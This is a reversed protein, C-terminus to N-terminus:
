KFNRMPASKMQYVMNSTQDGRSNRRAKSKQEKKKKVAGERNRDEDEKEMVMEDCEDEDDSYNRGREYENKQVTSIEQEFARGYDSWVAAQRQQAETKAVKGFLSKTKLNLFRAGSYDGQAALKATNQVANMGLVALNAHEEAVEQSNTIKLNRSIVRMCKMGNLKTYRIQVQFPLETLGGFDKVDKKIGYEFTVGTDQTVNGIDKIDLDKSEVQSDDVRLQMATHLRLTATVHTALVPMSLISQFNKTIELPSVRDVAGATLETLKGINEISCDDGKISLVSISTGKNQAYLGIQQYFEAIKDKESDDYMMDMAGLGVNSLGDTCIVIKSGPVKTAIGLAVVLAPGLATPGTEELQFLKQNLAEKAESVTKQIEYDQGVKFMQDYSMLRDGVVTESMQTGDGLVSVEGNFTILGVKRNPNEKYMTEIANSIAAQVCQLRTVYTIDRRENPLWQDAYGGFHNREAHQSTMEALNNKGKLKIKGEVEYSVCMSGSIDLVFIILDSTLDKVANPAAELIYDISEASPIEEPEIDVGNTANCFECKWVRGPASMIPTSMEDKPAEPASELVSTSSLVANCSGCFVPDGTSLQVNEMLTGFNISIVNTDAKRVRTKKKMLKQQAQFSFQAQQQAQPQAPPPLAAYHNDSSQANAAQPVAFLPNSQIPAPSPGGFMPSEWLDQAADDVAVEEEDSYNAEPLWVYSSGCDM